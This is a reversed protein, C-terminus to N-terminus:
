LAPTNSKRPPLACLEPLSRKFAALQAVRTSRGWLFYLPNAAHFERIARVASARNPHRTGLSPGYDGVTATYFLRRQGGTGAAVRSAAQARGLIIGDREVTGAPQGSLKAHRHIIYPSM